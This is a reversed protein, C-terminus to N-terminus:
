RPLLPSKDQPAVAGNSDDSLRIHEMSPSYVMTSGGGGSGKKLAGAAPGGGGVGPGVVAGAGGSSKDGFTFFQHMSIFVISVGLLFNMTLGHGFLAWSLLATFITAITSSYKKLITDAFQTHAPPLPTLLGPCCAPPRLCSRLHTQGYVCACVKYFFSSLIGQTCAAACVLLSTDLRTWVDAESREQAACVGVCWAGCVVGARVQLANNVVLMYTVRSQHEFISAFSQRKVLCVGLAGALNFLMGFFYLFFNQLHVSTDMHRKLGKENLVSAASPVTVSGLV